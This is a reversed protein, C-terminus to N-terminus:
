RAWKQTEESVFRGFDAPSGVVAAGGLEMLKGKLTPDALASNIEKNLKDIVEVSHEQTGSASGFLRTLDRFSNLWLRFRPLEEWRVSATVALARLKEARIHAISGPLNAFM